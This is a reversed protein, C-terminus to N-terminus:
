RADRDARIDATSDGSYRGVLSARLEDAWRIAEDRRARLAEILLDQAEDDVSRGSRRAMSRLVLMTGSDLNRLVVSQDDVAAPIPAAAAADRLRSPARSDNPLELVQEIHAHMDAPAHAKLAAALQEPRGEAWDALAAYFTAASGFGLRRMFLHRITKSDIHARDAVDRAVQMFARKPM